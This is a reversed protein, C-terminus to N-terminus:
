QILRMPDIRVSTRGVQNMPPQLKTVEVGLGSIGQDMLSLSFYVRQALEEILKAEERFLEKIRDVIREYNITETLESMDGHRLPLELVVDVRYYQGLKREEEYWGHHGYVMVDRVSLLYSNKM